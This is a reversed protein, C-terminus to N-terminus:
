RGVLARCVIPGFPTRRSSSWSAARSSSSSPSSPSPWSSGTASTASSTRSSSSPRTPLRRASSAAREDLTVLRPVVAPALPPPPVLRLAAELAEVLLRPDLPPGEDPRSGATRLGSCRGAGPPLGGLRERAPRSTAGPTATAGTSSSGSACRRRPIPGRRHPHRRAHPRPLLARSKILILQSAVSVFASIHAMQEVELRALAELYAGALDGLPVELIDLERQEILGFSSRSHDTTARSASTRPVTPTATDRSAYARTAADRTRCRRSRRGSRGTQSRSRGSRRCAARSRCSRRHAM